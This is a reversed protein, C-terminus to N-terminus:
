PTERVPRAQPTAETQRLYRLCRRYQQPYDRAVRAELSEALAEDRKAGGILHTYGTAGAKEPNFADETSGFLCYAYVGYFPSTEHHAHYAICASLFYQEFLINDGIKFGILEWATQNLPHEIFRIASDAYHNIFGIDNGGFVGCCLAEGRRQAVYWSWEPPLWGQTARVAVDFAEPRYWSGVFPFQETNQALVPAAEMAKPLRKWLFVDTDLHVFPKEQARYAYLKGLVWWDADATHLDQLGTSVHDFPLGLGDVLMAAGADDTILSTEPYHQRATQVSLIWALLHHKQSVWMQHHHAQFPRSWFSWVARQVGNTVPLMTPTPGSM